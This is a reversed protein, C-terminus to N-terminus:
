NEDQNVVSQERHLSLINDRETQNTKFMDTDMYAKIVNDPTFDLPMNKIKNMFGNLSEMDISGLKASLKSLIDTVYTKVMDSSIFAAIAKEVPREAIGTKYTINDDVAKLLSDIVGPDADKAVIDAIDTDGVIDEIYGLADDCKEIGSVDVNTFYNILEFKIFMDKAIGNFMDGSMLLNMVNSVLGIKKAMSIDTSYSFEHKSNDTFKTYTGNKNKM